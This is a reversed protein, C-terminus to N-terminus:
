PHEGELRGTADGAWVSWITLYDQVQVENFLPRIIQVARPSRGRLAKVKRAGRCGQDYIPM